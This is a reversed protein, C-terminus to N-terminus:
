SHLAVTKIPGTSASSYATSASIQAPSYFSRCSLCPPFDSNAPSDTCDKNDKENSVHVNPCEFIHDTEVGGGGGGMM